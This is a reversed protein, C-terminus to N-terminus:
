ADNWIKWSSEAQRELMELGNKVAAGRSLGEQLFPTISPNYVLDYLLHQPSVADYPIPLLGRGETGLTTTNILISHQGIISPTLDSYVLDAKGATRSVTQFPIGMAQLAFRVAQSAGGAGFVLAAAHRASLLPSLSDRFGTWDTNHGALRGATIRICNVAGIQRAADDLTDLLAIVSQKHPTTVNLGRLGPHLRLLDRFGAIQALPFAEYSADIGERQFKQAFYRPSFSHTLPFGILGYRAAPMHSM